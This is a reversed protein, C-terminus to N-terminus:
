KGTILPGNEIGNIQNEQINQLIQLNDKAEVATWNYREEVKLDKPSQQTKSNIGMNEFSRNYILLHSKGKRCLRAGRINLFYLNVKTGM